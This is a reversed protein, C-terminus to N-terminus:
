EILEGTNEDVFEKWFDKRFLKIINRDWERTTFQVSSMMKRFQNSHMAKAILPLTEIEDAIGGIDQCMGYEGTADVYPIGSSQWVSVIVKPIGFHKYAGKEDKKKERAYYIKLSGDRKSISYVCPYCYEETREKKAGDKVTGHTGYSYCRVWDITKEGEKAIIDLIKSNRNPIFSSIKADMNFYKNDEGRIKTQLKPTNSNRAVYMDFRTGAKFYKQGDATGHLALWLLDLSRMKERLEGITKPVTKGPGRWRSPHIMAVYGNPNLVELAQLAFNQWIVGMSGGKSYPPNGIVVDFKMTKDMLKCTVGFYDQVIRIFTDCKEHITLTINSALVGRQLLYIVLEPSNMVAIQDTPKIPVQDLLEDALKQPVFRGCDVTIQPADFMAKSAHLLRILREERQNM